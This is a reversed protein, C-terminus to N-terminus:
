VTQVPVPNEAPALSTARKPDVVFGTRPHAGFDAENIEAQGSFDDCQECEAATTEGHSPHSCAFVKIRVNGQCGPCERLGIQGGLHRCRGKLRELLRPPM